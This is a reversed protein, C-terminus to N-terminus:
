ANSEQLSKVIGEMKMGRSGKILVIDGSKLLQRLHNSAESNDECVIVIDKSIGSKIASEAIISAKKGVTILTEVINSEAIYKGISEHLEDSQDGLELMDGVVLIKKGDSELEKLFDVAMKMSTPNSNYTDNIVTIGDIILRQMRMSMPHYAELSSKIVGIDVGFIVGVAIGALANYINHQGISPLKIREQVIIPTNISLTFEPRGDQDLVIDKAKIFAPKDIGYFIVNGKVVDSMKAVLPDDANLVATKAFEVLNQKERAVGEISGLFELHTSSINTVVSVNPQAIRVLQSMEGPISIGMELVAIRHDSSLRFLTLPLGITNNLNGESKIVNFKGSLVASAMDKTTTKGNSGTVGIFPINFRDRYYKAINGLALMTDKVIIICPNATGTKVSDGLGQIEHSVVIGMAEKEIAQNIFDHGDFNEGILAVFLDGKKITRSDTSINCIDSNPNGRELSGTTANIVDSIKFNEM